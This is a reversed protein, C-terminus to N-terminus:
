CRGWLGERGDGASRGAPSIRDILHPEATTSASLAAAFRAGAGGNDNCLEQMSISGNPGCASLVQYTHDPTSALRVVQGQQLNM